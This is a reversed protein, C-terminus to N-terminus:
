SISDEVGWVYARVCAHACAREFPSYVSGCVGGDITRGWGLPYSHCPAVLALCWAVCFFSYQGAQGAKEESPRVHVARLMEQERRLNEAEYRARETADTLAASAQQARKFLETTDVHRNKDPHLELAQRRFARRVDEPTAVRTVGLLEYYNLEMTEGPSVVCPQLLSLSLSLPSSPPLSLPVPFSTCCPSGGRQM